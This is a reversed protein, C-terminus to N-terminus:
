HVEGLNNQAPRYNSTSPSHCGSFDGSLSTIQAGDKIACAMHLITLKARFFSSHALKKGLSVKGSWDQCKM